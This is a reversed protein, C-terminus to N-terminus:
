NEKKQSRFASAIQKLLESKAVFHKTLSIYRCLQMLFKRNSPLSPVIKLVSTDFFLALDTKGGIFYM